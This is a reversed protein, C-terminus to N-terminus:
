KEDANDADVRDKKPTGNNDSDGNNDSKGGDGYNGNNGKNANNDRLVSKMGGAYAKSDLFLLYVILLGAGVCVATDAANFVWRWLSPFACFDIYDIVYGLSLRDVMNGVGGGLILAASIYVLKHYGKARALFLTLLVIMIASVVIFIWRQQGLIGFAAGTNQVYTVNLVGPIVEFSQGVTMGSSVAYKLALDIVVVALAIIFASVM